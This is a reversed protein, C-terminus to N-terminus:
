QASDAFKIYHKATLWWTKEALVRGNILALRAGDVQAAMALICQQSVRIYSKV